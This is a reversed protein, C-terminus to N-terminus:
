TVILYDDNVATLGTLTRAPLMDDENVNAGIGVVASGVVSAAATVRVVAKTVVITQGSPVIYLTPEAPATALDVGITSSLLVEGSSVDRVANINIAM